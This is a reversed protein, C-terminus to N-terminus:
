NGPAKGTANAQSPTPAPATIKFAQPAQAPASAQPAWSAQIRGRYGESNLALPIGLIKELQRLEATPKKRLAEPDDMIARSLVAHAATHQSVLADISHDTASGRAIQDLLGPLDHTANEYEHFQRMKQATPMVARGLADFYIHPARLSLNTIQRVATEEVAQAVEPAMMVVDGLQNRVTARVQEPNAAMRHITQIREVPDKIPGEDNYAYARNGAVVRAAITARRGRLLAEGTEATKMLLKGAASSAKGAFATGSALSAGVAYGVIAGVPGGAVAGVAAAGMKGGIRRKIWEMVGKRQSKGLPTAVGRAEDAALRAAKRLAWVQDLKNVFPDNVPRLNFHEGLELAAASDLRGNSLEAIKAFAQDLRAAAADGPSVRGGRSVSEQYWEDLYKQVAPGREAARPAYPSAEREVVNTKGEPVDKVKKTKARGEPTEPLERTKAEVPEKPLPEGRPVEFDRYTRTGTAEAGPGALDRVTKNGDGKVVNFNQVTGEGAPPAVPAPEARLALTDESMRNRFQAFAEANQRMDQSPAIFGDNLIELDRGPVAMDREAGNLLNDPNGSPELRRNGFGEGALTDKSFQDLSFKGPPSEPQWPTRGRVQTDAMAADGFPAEEVATYEGSAPTRASEPEMAKAKRGGGTKAEPSAMDDFFREQPVGGEGVIPGAQPEVKFRELNAAAADAESGLGSFADEYPRGHLRAYEAKLDAPVFERNAGKGRWFGGEEMMQDLRFPVPMGGPGEWMALGGGGYTDVKGFPNGAEQPTGWGRVRQHEMPHPRFVDDLEQVAASHEEAVQRFKRYAVDDDLVKALDFSELKNQLRQARALAERRPPNFMDPVHGERELVDLVGMRQQHIAIAEGHAGYVAKIEDNLARGAASDATILGGQGAINKRSVVTTLGGSLVGAGFGLAAGLTMEHLVAGGVFEKDEFVADSLQHGFSTSGMLGAGIAAEELGRTAMRAVGAGTGERILQKALARGAQKSGETVARVPSTVGMTAVTGAIQGLLASGSNVSRRIDAEEGHEHILGLSAADVAGEAFTLAADGMTDFTARRRAAEEAVARASVIDPAASEGRTAAVGVQAVPRTIEGADSRTTVTSEAPSYRGSEIGAAVQDPPLSTWKEAQHDYVPVLLDSM